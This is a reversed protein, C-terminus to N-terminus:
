WDLKCVWVHFSVKTNGASASTVAKDKKQIMSGLDAMLNDLTQLDVDAIADSISPENKVPVAKSAGLPAPAIPKATAVKESSAKVGSDPYNKNATGSITNSATNSNATSTPTPTSRAVGQPASQTLPLPLTSKNLAAPPPVQSLQQPPRAPPFAASADGATNVDGGMESSLIDPFRRELEYFVDSALDKFRPDSLTALKQRAQNRKPHFEPQM